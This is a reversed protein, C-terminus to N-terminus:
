PLFNTHCLFAGRNSNDGISDPLSPECFDIDDMLNCISSADLLPPSTNWRHMPVYETTPTTNPHQSVKHPSVHPMCASAYPVITSTPPSTNWIHMPEHLNRAAAHSVIARQM